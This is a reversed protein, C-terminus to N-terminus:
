LLGNGACGRRVDVAPEHRPSGEDRSFDEIFISLPHRDVNHETTADIVQIDGDDVELM